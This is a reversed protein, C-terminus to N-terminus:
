QEDVGLKALFDRAFKAAEKRGQVYGRFVLDDSLDDCGVMDNESFDAIHLLTQMCAILAQAVAPADNRATAIFDANTDSVNIAVVKDTRPIPGVYVFGQMCRWEGEAVKESAEVIRQARTLINDGDSM